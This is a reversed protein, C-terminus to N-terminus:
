PYASHTELRPVCTEQQVYYMRPLRFEHRQKHQLPLFSFPSLFAGMGTAPTLLNSAHWTQGWCGLVLSRHRCTWSFLISSM